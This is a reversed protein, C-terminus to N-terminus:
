SKTEPLNYYHMRNRFLELLRQNSRLINQDGDNKAMSCAIESTKIAAEFDGAEAYAASLTGICVTVHYNTLECARKAIRVAEVGNRVVEDPSTSLLWAYNNCTEFQNPNAIWDAKLKKLSERAETQVKATTELFKECQSRDYGDVLAKNFCTIARQMYGKCFWIIGCDYEVREWNPKLILAKEFHDFAEDFRNKHGLVSGLSLQSGACDPNLSVSKQYEKLAADEGLHNELVTGLCFHAQWNNEGETVDVAHSWITVDDKFFSIEKRTRGVCAVGISIGIVLLIATKNKWGETLDKLGWVLCIVFGIMPIYTYRNAMSQSMLQILGIVPVLTGLYWLWGVLLYPRQQRLKFATASIGLILTGAFLVKFTPWHGPHPYYISLNEPWVFKGLYRVYSILANGMKDGITLNSMEQTTGGLQQAKFVLWSGLIALVLFPLKEMLLRFRSKQRWLELPWYDLLLLVFPMTVLMAKSMLGCVFFLLALIYFKLPQGNEQKLHQVYKTYALLTLLWFFLSLVDKRECIWAVSEVRLPHLGFLMAVLLSRWLAGTMMRLVVFVLVCNGAHILVSTLHHGWPDLGYFECDIMHSLWKLPNWNSHNLTTFAWTVNELSLGTNVHPEYIIEDNEDYFLFHCGLSPAFTWIVLGFLLVSLLVM